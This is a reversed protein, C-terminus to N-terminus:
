RLAFFSTCDLFQERVISSYRENSFRWMGEGRDMDDEPSGETSQFVFRTTRSSFPTVAFTLDDPSSSM